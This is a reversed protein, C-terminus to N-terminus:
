NHPEGILALLLREYHSSTEAKIRHALNKKYRTEYARKVQALSARDWHFRVVRAVLLRDQTGAGAMADELLSAQHMFKDEAHRLQYILAHEM